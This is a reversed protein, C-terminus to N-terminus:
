RGSRRSKRGGCSKRGGRCSKRGGKSKRSGMAVSALTLTAPVLVSSVSTMGGGVVPKNMAIVNSGAVAHQQGANGYVSAGFQGTSSFGGAQEGTQEGAEEGALHDRGPIADSVFGLPNGASQSVVPLTAAVQVPETGGLVFPALPVLSGGRIKRRRVCSSKKRYTKAMSYVKRVYKIWSLERGRAFHSHQYSVAIKDVVVFESFSFLHPHRQLYLYVL